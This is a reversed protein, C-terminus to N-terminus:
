AGGSTAVILMWRIHGQSPIHQHHNQSPLPESKNSAVELGCGMCLYIGSSPAPAGPPHPTDFEPSDLASLVHAYKYCAM